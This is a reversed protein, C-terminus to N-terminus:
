LGAKMERRVQRKVKWIIFLGIITCTHYVLDEVMRKVLRRLM